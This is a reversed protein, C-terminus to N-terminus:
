LQPQQQRVHQQVPSPLPMTTWMQEEKFAQIFREIKKVTNFNSFQM